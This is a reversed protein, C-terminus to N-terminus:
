RARRLVALVPAIRQEAINRGLCAMREDRDPLILGLEVPPNPDAPESTLEAVAPAVAGPGVEWLEAAFGPRELATRLAEPALLHSDDPRDAWPLPFHPGGGPGAVTEALAWRGGPALVRHAEAALPAVDAVNPLVAQTWIVDFCGDAFPLAEGLAAVIEIADHLGTAANLEAALRRFRATPEVATVHAGFRSALVRAPGGIGAGLDLVREGPRLEALKALAVTGALGLAHFQDMAVLDDVRLRAPDLGAERLSDRVPGTLDPGDYYSTLQTSMGPLMPARHASRM